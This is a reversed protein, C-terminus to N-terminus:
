DVFVYQLRYVEDKEISGCYKWKMGRTIINQTHLGKQKMYEEFIGGCKTTFEEKDASIDCAILDAEHWFCIEIELGDAMTLIDVSDESFDDEPYRKPYGQLIESKVSKDLLTRFMSTVEKYSELDLVEDYAYRANHFLVGTGGAKKWGLINEYRDDILVCGKGTCFPLKETWDHVLNVVIDNGLYKRIWAIKDEEAHIIERRAKPVASLIECKDGYKDILTKLMEVSGLIPELKYYFHDVNKVAAWMREDDDTGMGCHERVGREFDALVGDMDIYIKEISM